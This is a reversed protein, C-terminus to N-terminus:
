SDTRAGGSRLEDRRSSRVDGLPDSTGRHRARAPRHNARGTFMALRLQSTRQTAPRSVPWRISLCRRRAVSIARSAARVPMEDERGNELLRPEHRAGRRCVRRQHWQAGRGCSRGTFRILVSGLPWAPTLRARSFGGAPGPRPRGGADGSRGVPRRRRRRGSRRGASPRGAADRGLHRARHARGGALAVGGPVAAGCGPHQARLLRRRRDPM